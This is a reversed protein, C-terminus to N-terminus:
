VKLDLSNQINNEIIASKYDDPGFKKSFAPTPPYNLPEMDVDEFKM